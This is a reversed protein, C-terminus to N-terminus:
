ESEPSKAPCVSLVPCPAQRAVRDTTSGLLLTEMLGRGRVGLVILDMKNKVAFDILERYPEGSLCTTSIRCWNHAEEPVMADLRETLPDKLTAILDTVASAPLPVDRYTDSKIVHVLHLDAEFEQALGLGYKFARESDPSFDCGVLIRKLNLDATTDMPTNQIPPTVIWLPSIITKMLRETVSGLLFRKLGSRGHTATITLDVNKQVVINAITEATPGTTILSEWAVPSKEMIKNLKEAAHDMMSKQQELPYEYTVGHISVTPLDIIHCLYLKSGFEKAVSLGYNVAHNSFDSLDTACLIRKIDIKMVKEGKENL